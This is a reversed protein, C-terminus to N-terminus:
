FSCTRKEEGLNNLKIMKRKYTMINMFYMMKKKIRCTVINSSKSTKIGYYTHDIRMVEQM